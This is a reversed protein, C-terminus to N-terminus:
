LYEGRGCGGAGTGGNDDESDKSRTGGKSGSENGIAKCFSVWEQTVLCGM